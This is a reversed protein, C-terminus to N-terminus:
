NREKQVLKVFNSIEEDTWPKREKKKEPKGASEAFKAFDIKMDPMKELIAVLDLIEKESTMKGVGFMEELIHHLPVKM